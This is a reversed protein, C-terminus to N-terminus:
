FPPEGIPIEKPINEEDILPNDIEEFQEEGEKSVEFYSRWGKETKRRGMKITAVAGEEIDALQSILSISSTFFTKREGDEEVLFKMGEIPQGNEDKLTDEKANLIKLKHPQGDKFSIFPM